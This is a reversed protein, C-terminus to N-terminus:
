QWSVIVSELRYRELSGWLKIYGARATLLDATENSPKFNPEEITQANLDWKVIDYFEFSGDRPMV